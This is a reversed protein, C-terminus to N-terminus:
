LVTGPFQLVQMIIASPTPAFEEMAKPVNNEVDSCYAHM